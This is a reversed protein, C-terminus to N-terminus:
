TYQRYGNTDTTVALYHNDDSPVAGDLNFFEHGQALANVDLIIEEPAALSGHKRCHLEYDNGKETRTYYYYDGRRAPASSDTERMYGVMEQYLTQRLPEQPATAADAYANEANLYSLVEPNTKDRLWFYNDVRSCGHLRLQKPIKRAVPPLPNPSNTGAPQAALSVVSLLLAFVSSPAFNMRGMTPIEGVGDLESEPGTASPFCAPRM